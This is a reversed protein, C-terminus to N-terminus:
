GRRAVPREIRDLVLSLGVEFEDDPFEGGDDDFTGGM